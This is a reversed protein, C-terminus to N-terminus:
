YIDDKKLYLGVPVLSALALVGGLWFVQNFGYLDYALGGIMPGVLMGLSQGTFVVGMVAGMSDTKRGQVTAIAQLAPLFFGGGVGLALNIVLLTPMTKAFPMLGMGVVQILAGIRILMTRSVRDALVGFPAQLLASSAVNIGVLLGIWTTAMDLSTKLLLPQFTWCISVCLSYSIRFLFMGRIVRNDRILPWIRNKVQTPQPKIIEKRPLLFWAIVLGCFIILGMAIFTGDMGALDNIIGGFFPGFSLGLFNILNLRGMETGERGQPALDGVYATAIPWVMAAAVGQCLRAAIIQTLDGAGLYLWTSACYLGLGTLILRRRGRRDSLRGFYPLFLTRSLSFSAFVFGIMMGSAGFSQVYAPILPSVIGAGLFSAFVSIYIATLIKKRNLQENM